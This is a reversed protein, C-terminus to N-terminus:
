FILCTVGEHPFARIRARRAYRPLSPSRLISGVAPHPEAHNEGLGLDARVRDDDAVEGLGDLVEAEVVQDGVVVDEAGRGGVPGSPDPRVRLRVHEVLGEHEEAIEGATRSPTPTPHFETSYSANPTSKWV